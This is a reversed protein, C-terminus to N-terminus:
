DSDGKRKKEFDSFFQDFTEQWGPDLRSKEEDSLSPIPLFPFGLDEQGLWTINHATYKLQVDALRLSTILADIADIARGERIKNLGVGVIQYPCRWDMFDHDDSYLYPMGIRLRVVLPNGQPDVAAFERELIPESIM